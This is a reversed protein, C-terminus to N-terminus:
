YTREMNLDNQKCLNYQFPNKTTTLLDNTLKQYSNADTSSSKTWTQTGNQVKFYASLLTGTLEITKLQRSATHNKVESNRTEQKQETLSLNDLNWDSERIYM